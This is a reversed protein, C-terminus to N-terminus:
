NVLGCGAIVYHAVGNKDKYNLELESGPRPNLGSGPGNHYDTLMPALQSDVGKVVYAGDKSEIIVLSTNLKTDAYETVKFNEIEGAFHLLTESSDKLKIETIAKPGQSMVNEWASCKVTSAHAHVSMLVFAAIIIKM